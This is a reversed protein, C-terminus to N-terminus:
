SPSPGRRLGRYLEGEAEAVGDLDKLFELHEEAVLTVVGADPRTIATLRALEGPSSMGLEVVAARHGGSLRLLTLPVGIENNLNGETALARGARGSFRRSGDGEDDDQRELRRRRRAPIAFRRRHFGRSRGSRRSRTTWRSSPAAAAGPPRERRSSSRGRRGKRRADALFDHADFREGKLAVFLSGPALTRTDTSVGSARPGGAARVGGDRARGGAATFPARGSTAARPVARGATALGLARPWSGTPEFPRPSRAREM